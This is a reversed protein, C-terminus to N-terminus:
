VLGGQNPENASREGHTLQRMEAYPGFINTSRQMMVYRGVSKNESFLHYYYGNVKYLKSAERSKGELILQRSEEILDRGDPTLRYLYTKYGDAFHMGVFYGQGDADWFPCCDDWGAEMTMQHLAGV